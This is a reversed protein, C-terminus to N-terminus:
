ENQVRELLDVLTSIANYRDQLQDHSEHKSCRNLAEKAYFLSDKAHNLASKYDNFHDVALKSRLYAEHSQQEHYSCTLVYGVTRNRELGRNIRSLEEDSSCSSRAIILYEFAKEDFYFAADWNRKQAFAISADTAEKGAVIHEDCETLLIADALVSQSVFLLLALFIKMTAGAMKPPQPRIRDVTGRENSDTRLQRLRSDLHAVVSSKRPWYGM